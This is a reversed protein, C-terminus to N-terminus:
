GEHYIKRNEPPLVTVEMDFQYGEGIGNDRLAYSILPRNLLMDDEGTSIRIKQQGGELIPDKNIKLLITGDPDISMSAKKKSLNKGTTIKKILMDIETASKPRLDEYAIEEIEKAVKDIKLGRIFLIVIIGVGLLFISWGILYSPIGALLEELFEEM